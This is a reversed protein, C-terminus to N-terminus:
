SSYMSYMIPIHTALVDENGSRYMCVYMHLPRHRSGVLHKKPPPASSLTHQALLIFKGTLPRDTDCRSHSNTMPTLAVPGLPLYGSPTRIRRVCVYLVSYPCLEGDQLTQAGIHTGDPRNTGDTPSAATTQM